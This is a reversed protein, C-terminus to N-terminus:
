AGPARGPLGRYTTRDETRDAALAGCAPPGRVVRWCGRPPAGTLLLRLTAV